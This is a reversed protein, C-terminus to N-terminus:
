RPWNAGRIWSALVRVWHSFRPGASFALGELLFLQTAVNEAIAGVGAGEASVPEREGERAAVDERADASVLEGVVEGSHVGVLQERYLDPSHSPSHPASIYSDQSPSRGADRADCLSGPGGFNSIAGGHCSRGDREAGAAAGKNKRPPTCFLGRHERV